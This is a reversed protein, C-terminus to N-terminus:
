AIGLVKAAFWAAVISLTPWQCKVVNAFMAPTDWYLQKDKWKPPCDPVNFMTKTRLGRNVAAMLIHWERYNSIFGGPNRTIVAIWTGLFFPANEEGAFDDRDYGNGTEEVEM